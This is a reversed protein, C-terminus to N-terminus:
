IEKFYWDDFKAQERTYGLNDLLSFIKDRQATHNHEVTICRIQFRSWDFAELITFESGETDISLYDIIAPAGQRELLDVLSLTTVHITNGLVGYADRKDAHMDDHSFESLGGYADALIFTKSEGTSAYICAPSLHCSRNRQLQTFFRPNPEACIGEWEFFKELLWSNSLLVGDTAGFEVFYGHRKWNLKELVWLDQGLQSRSISEFRERQGGAFTQPGRELPPITPNALAGSSLALSLERSLLESEAHVIQVEAKLHADAEEKIEIANVADRHLNEAQEWEGSRALIQSVILRAYAVRKVSGLDAPIHDTVLDMAKDLHQRTLLDQIRALPISSWKDEEGLHLAIRSLISLLGNTFSHSERAPEQQAQDVVYRVLTAWDAHLRLATQWSECSDQSEQMRWTTRANAIFLTCIDVAQSATCGYQSLLRIIGSTSGALQQVDGLALSAGLLQSASMPLSNLAQVCRSWRDLELTFQVDPQLALVLWEDWSSLQNTESLHSMLQNVILKTNNSANRLQARWLRFVEAYARGRELWSGDLDHSECDEPWSPLHVGLTALQQTLPSGSAMEHNIM